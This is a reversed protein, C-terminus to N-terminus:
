RRRSLCVNVANLFARREDEDWLQIEEFFRKIKDFINHKFKSMNSASFGFKEAFSKDSSIMEESNFQAHLYKRENEDLSEILKEVESEYDVYLRISAGSKPGDIDTEINDEYVASVANIISDILMEEKVPIALRRMLEIAVANNNWEVM